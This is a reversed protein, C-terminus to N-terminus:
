LTVEDGAAHLAARLTNRAAVYAGGDDINGVLADIFAARLKWLDPKDDPGDIGPYGNLHDRLARVAALEDPGGYFADNYANYLDDALLDFEYYDFAM